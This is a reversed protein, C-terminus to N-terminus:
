HLIVPIRGGTVDLLVSVGDATLHVRRTFATSGNTSSSAARPAASHPDTPMTAEMDGDVILM